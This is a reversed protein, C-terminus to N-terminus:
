QEWALADVPSKDIIKNSEKQKKEIHYPMISSKLNIM